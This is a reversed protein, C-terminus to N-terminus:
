RLGRDRNVVMRNHLRTIIRSGTKEFLAPVVAHILCVISGAFMSAAFGFAHGFHRVYSENVTEPHDLFLKSFM